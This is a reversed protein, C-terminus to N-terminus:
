HRRIPLGLQGETLRTALFTESESPDFRSPSFASIDISTYGDAVFEALLLGAGPNYAFGSGQFALGTFFGPLEELPGLLPEGDMPITLLGVSESGWSLGKLVPVFSSFNRRIRDKLEPAASLESIQFDPSDVQYEPREPSSIGLLLRGGSAPRVYGDLPHANVVPFVLPSPLPETLYRQHVSSKVPLTLGLDSILRRTWSDVAGIVADAELFGNTIAVGTVRGGSTIIEKVMEGERVEVGMRRIRAALAPVYEHPESYGGLPDLLGVSNDQPQLMPWRRKMEVSDLVEFPAELERYMELLGERENWSRPTFLNLCGAANYEYGELEQSLQRFLELCLKRVLVSTRTLLLGTIIGAARSSSGDGLVGKEILTVHGYGKRALHYATSMGLVGGGIVIARPTKM